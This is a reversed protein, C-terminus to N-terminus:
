PTFGDGVEKLTVGHGSFFTFTYPEEDFETFRIISPSSKENISRM